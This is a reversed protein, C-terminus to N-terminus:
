EVVVNKGINKGEYMKADAQEFLAKITIGPEYASVGITVTVKVQNTKYEVALDQVGRRIREAVRVAISKEANVLILIEEGGWRFIYDTNNVSHMIAKAVSKLVEDGCAHGYVDNIHKFDDIDLMLLCFSENKEDAKRKAIELYTNLTRRNLLRTLSDYNLYGRLKDLSIVLLLLLLFIFVLIFVFLEMYDSLFDKITYTSNQLTHYTISKAKEEGSISCIGRNVLSLLTLNNRTVAFGIECAHPINVVKLSRYKRSKHIFNEVQITNFIAGECQRDLVAELCSKRSDFLTLKTKPYFDAMYSPGLRTFAVAVNDAIEKTTNNCIYSMAVSYASDSLIYGQNEAQELSMYIPFALHIKGSDLDELLKQYNKYFVYTFEINSAAFSEKSFDLLDVVYGAANGDKDVYCYPFDDEMVGVLVKNNEFLWKKEEELLEKQAFINSYYKTWLNSNYYPNLYLLSAMAENLEQCLDKSNKSFAFYIDRSELKVIPYIDTASFIDLDVFGDIENNIFSKYRDLEDDFRIVNIKASVSKAWEMLIQEHVTKNVVGININEKTEFIKPDEGLRDLSSFIVYTEQGMSFNSFNFLKSREETRVVSPMMDIKGSILKEYIENWNGYVYNCKWGTYSVLKQIYEYSYGAKRFESNTIDIDVGDVVYGITVIKQPKDNSPIQKEAAFIFSFIFLYVIILLFKKM